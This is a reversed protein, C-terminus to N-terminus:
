HVDIVAKGSKFVQIPLLQGQQYLIERYDDTPYLVLDAPHGEAIKGAHTLGLARAARVTIAALVEANTLKEYAGLVAAQLVLNGMPASGPNWDSAIALTAGADLLKRAPAFACGLGMSAGPLAMAVTPSQALLQIEVEGSVELHDASLAGVKVALASGGTTFQDAHVTLQFGAAQAALLYPQAEAVSFASQEVFIDVRNSLKEQQLVPLLERLLLDLYEAKSGQYDKPCMHAALCTPILRATTQRSAARIARLIRLESAVSLGYGSKVEVTTIGQRLLRNARTVTAAVLEEQSAKRTQSVTDWIGGGAAAIELYSKGANRLAYDRARSGAFCIHTHADIFGPLAVRPERQEFYELQTYAEAQKRAADWPLVSRIKAAEVIIGVQERVLLTEDAIPGSEPLDTMPLVQTLPGILTASTHTM